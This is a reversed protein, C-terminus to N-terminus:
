NIFWALGIEYLWAVTSPDERFQHLSVETRLATSPSVTALASVNANWGLLGGDGNGIGSLGAGPLIMLREAVPIPLVLGARVGFIPSENLLRPVTGVSLDFGLHKPEAHTLNIGVIALDLPLTQNRVGAIGVSVGVMNTARDTVTSDQADSNRSLLALLAGVQVARLVWTAIRDNRFTRFPSLHMALGM